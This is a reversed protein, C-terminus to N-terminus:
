WNNVDDRDRDNTVTNGERDAAVDNGDTAVDRSADWHGYVRSTEVPGYPLNYTAAAAGNTRYNPGVSYVDVTQRNHLPAFVMQGPCSSEDSGSADSVTVWALRRTADYGSGIVSFTGNNGTSPDCGAVEIQGSDPVAPSVYFTTEDANPHDHDVSDIPRRRYARYLYPRGWPDVFENFGDGDYDKRQKAKFDFFPGAASDVRAFVPNSTAPTWGSGWPRGAASSSRVFERTLYWAMCENPTNMEEFPVVNPTPDRLDLNSDPPFAGFTLNYAQLAQTLNSIDANATRQRAIRRVASLAPLLIAALVGIIAIVTLMEILTFSSLRLILSSREDNTMGCEANM